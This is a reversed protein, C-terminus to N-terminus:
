KRFKLDKNSRLIKKYKSFCSKAYCSTIKSYRFKPVYGPTLNPFDEDVPNENLINCTMNM